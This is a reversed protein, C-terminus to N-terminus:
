NQNTGQQKDRLITKILAYPDLQFYRLVMLSLEDKFKEPSQKALYEMRKLNAKKSKETNVLYLVEDFSLQLLAALDYLNSIREIKSTDVCAIIDDRKKPKSQMSLQKLRLHYAQRSIGYEETVKHTKEGNEIRTHITIIDEDSVLKNAM